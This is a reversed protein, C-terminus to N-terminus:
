MCGMNGGLHQMLGLAYRGPPRTLSPSLFLHLFPLLFSLSLSPPYPYTHTCLIIIFSSIRVKFGLSELQYMGSSQTDPSSFVIEKGEDAPTENENKSSNNKYNNSDVSQYSHLYYSFFRLKRKAAEGDESYVFLYIFLYIFLCVFLYTCSLHSM